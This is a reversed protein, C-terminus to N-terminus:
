KGQLRAVPPTQWGDRHRDLLLLLLLSTPRSFRNVRPVHPRGLLDLVVDDDGDGDDGDEGLREM